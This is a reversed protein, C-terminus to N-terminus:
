LDKPMQKFQFPQEFIFYSSILFIYESLVFMRTKFFHKKKLKLINLDKNSFWTWISTINIRGHFCKNFTKFKRMM